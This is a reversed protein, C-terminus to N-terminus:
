NKERKEVRLTALSAGTVQSNRAGRHTKRGGSKEAVAFTRGERGGRGLKICSREAEERHLSPRDADGRRGVEQYRERLIDYKNTVVGEREENAEPFLQDEKSNKAGKRRSEPFLVLRGGGM